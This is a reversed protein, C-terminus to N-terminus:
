IQGHRLLASALFLAGLVTTWQARSSLSTSANPGTQRDRYWESGFKCSVVRRM